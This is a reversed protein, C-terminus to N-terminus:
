ERDSSGVAAFGIADVVVSGAALESCRRQELFVSITEVAKANDGEVPGLPSPLFLMVDKTAARSDARVCISFGLSATLM